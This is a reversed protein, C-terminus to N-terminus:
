LLNKSKRIMEKYTEIVDPYATTNAIIMPTTAEYGAEKIKEIDFKM